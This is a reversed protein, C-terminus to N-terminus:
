FKLRTEGLDLHALPNDDVHFSFKCIAFVVDAYELDEDLMSLILCLVLKLHESDVERLDYEPRIENTLRLHLSFLKEDLM